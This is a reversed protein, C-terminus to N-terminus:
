AAAYVYVRRNDIEMAMYRIVDMAHDSEKLPEERKDAAKSIDQWRYIGFEKITNVCNATIQLRPKGDAQVILRSKVKQIGRKVDKQANRTGVGCHAMEANDQADHDAVTWDFRGLRSNIAASHEAILKRTKYHEDYITLRGDGDLAGWLCVFPNTYGYDIGRVKTWDGPIPFPLVVHVRPSWESYVLGEFFVFEGHIEQRAYEGSYNAILDEIYERPLFRNEGTSAQIMEYGALPKDVWKEWVWNYGAPTTTIWAKPKGVRLRGLLVSWVAGRVLAAEDVYAWSLNPGRLREPDDGSRFLITCGNVVAREEAKFFEFPIGADHLIDFLSKQVVDRLMPFTPAVIMGSEGSKCHMLAKMCGAWTKGSGVGGIFATYKHPSHLFRYQSPLAKAIKEM